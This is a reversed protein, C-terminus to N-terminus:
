LWGNGTSAIHRRWRRVRGEPPFQPQQAQVQDTAVIVAAALFTGILFRRSARGAAFTAALSSATM